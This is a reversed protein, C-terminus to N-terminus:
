LAPAEDPNFRQDFVSMSNQPNLQLAAMVEAPPCLGMAHARRWREERNLGRCPGYMPEMDFKRLLQEDDDAEASSWRLRPDIYVVDRACKDLEEQTYGPAVFYSDIVTESENTDFYSEPDAAAAAAASARHKMKRRDLKPTVLPSDPCDTKSRPGKSPTRPESPSRPRARPTRVEVESYRCPHGVEIVDDDSIIDVSESRKKRSMKPTKKNQSIHVRPEINPHM